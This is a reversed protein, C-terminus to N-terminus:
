CDTADAFNQLTKLYIYAQNIPNLGNMDYASEYSYDAFAPVGSNDMYSRVQYAITTNNKIHLGEVRHYANQANFGHPTQVTKKLAM